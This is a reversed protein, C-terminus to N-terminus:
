SELFIFRNESEFFTRLERTQKTNNNVTSLTIMVIGTLYKYNHTTLLNQM